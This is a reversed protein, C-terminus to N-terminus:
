RGRRGGRTGPQMQQQTGQQMGGRGTPMGGPGYREQLKQQRVDDEQWRKTIKQVREAHIMMLGNITAVTKTAKEETAVQRLDDLDLLNIQHVADLLSKKDEPKANLWAQAM